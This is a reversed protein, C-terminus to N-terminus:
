KNRAAIVQNKLDLVSKEWTNYPTAKNTAGANINHVNDAERIIPKIQEAWLNLKQIAQDDSLIKSQFFTKYDQYEKTFSVWSETLKDCAASRQKIFTGFPQCSNTIDGLKDTIPTIPNSPFIIHEFAGDLDWPLLHLKKNIQDEYWYYNHNECSAAAGSCYWHFPGDDHRITRDVVIYPIIKDIDMYKKVVNNITNNNAQAIALGFEKMVVINPIDENTKLAEIMKADSQVQGDAKLPWVEKYINAKTNNYHYSVFRNDVEETLAYLGSFIGNILVRAHVSRPAAVNMQSFLWYGLRERLQAKDYNQSHFQLKNLDFFREKRDQWNIKIQMSLKTCTKFGSPRTWDTGSVCGAYAGISGKYRIGVPSITDGEFILAAEVYEEEAPAANIKALDTPRIIINYTKIVDQNFIYDSGKKLYNENGKPIIKTILPKVIVQPDEEPTLDKSCSNVIFALLIISISKRNLV